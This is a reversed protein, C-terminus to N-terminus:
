SHVRLQHIQYRRVGPEKMLVSAFRYASIKGSPTRSVDNSRGVVPRLLPFPRGCPCPRPAYAAIDGLRYRVLPFAGNPLDTVVVAAAVGPPVPRGEADVVELLKQDALM